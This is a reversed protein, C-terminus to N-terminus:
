YSSDILAPDSSQLTVPVSEQGGNLAAINVQLFPEGSFLTGTANLLTVGSLLGRVILYLPGPIVANSFNTITGSSTVVAAPSQPGGLDVVYVRTTVDPAVDITATVTVSNDTDDTLTVVPHFSGTKAGPIVT